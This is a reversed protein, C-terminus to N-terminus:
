YFPPNRPPHHFRFRVLKSHLLGSEFGGIFIRCWAAECSLKLNGRRCFSGGVTVGNPPLEMMSVLQGRPTVTLVRSESDLSRPEFGRSAKTIEAPESASRSFSRMGMKNQMQRAYMAEGLWPRPTCLNRALQRMRASLNKKISGWRSNM